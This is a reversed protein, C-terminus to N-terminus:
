FLEIRPAEDVTAAAGALAAHVARQSAMVYTKQLEDLRQALSPGDGCGGITAEVHTGLEGIAEAVHELRQRMVDHFQVHGLIAALRARLLDDEAGQPLDRAIADVEAIVRAMGEECDATAGEIQQMLTAVYRPLVALDAEHGQAGHAKRGWRFALAHSGLLGAAAIALSTLSDIM